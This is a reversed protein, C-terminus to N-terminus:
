SVIDISILLEFKSSINNQKTGLILNRRSRRCFKGGQLFPM